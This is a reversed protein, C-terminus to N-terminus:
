LKICYEVHEALNSKLLHLVDNGQCSFIHNQKVHGLLKWYLGDLLKDYDLFDDANTLHVSVSHSMALKM